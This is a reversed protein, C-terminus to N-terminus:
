FLFGFDNPIGNKPLPQRIVGRYDSHAIIGPYSQDAVAFIRKSVNRAYIFDDNLMPPSLKDFERALSWFKLSGRIDGHITSPITRMEESRPEFGFITNNDIVKSITGEGNPNPIQITVSENDGMALIEKEYVTQDSIRAYLPNPYDYRSNYNMWKRSGQFYSTRPLIYMLGLVVCPEGAYFKLKNRGNISIGKGALNGQPSTGTTESTQDVDDVYLPTVDGGLYEARQLRADSVRAGFIGYLWDQLKTGVYMSLNKGFGLAMTDRLQNVDIASAQTLDAAYGSNGSGKLGTTSYLDFDLSDNNTSCQIYPRNIAANTITKPKLVTRYSFFDNLMTIPNGDSVIPASVGLPLYTPEGRSQTPLANTYKDIGWRVYFIDKLTTTDLGPATSFEIEDTINRNIFHDNVVKWYARLAWANQTFNAVKVEENRDNYYNSAYGLYDMLSGPAYGNSGSNVKPTETNDDDNKGGTMYKEFLAEDMLLRLPVKFYRTFVWTDHMYPAVLPMTRLKHSPSLKWWSNPMVYECLIPVLAGMNLTYDRSFKVPFNNLKPARFVLYKTSM